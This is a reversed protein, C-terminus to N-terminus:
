EDAWTAVPRLLDPIIFEPDPAFELQTESLGLYGSEAYSMLMRQLALWVEPEYEWDRDYPAHGAIARLSWFYTNRVVSGTKKYQPLDEHNLFLIDDEIRARM